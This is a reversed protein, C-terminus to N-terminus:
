GGALQLITDFLSAGIAMAKASAQYAQQYRLLNAAEEDLNVGSLTERSSRAQDLITQQANSAVQLQRTRSGVQSVLNAYADALSETGGGITPQTQLQAIALANRGDATAGANRVISFSDGNNPLGSIVFSFGSPQSTAASGVLTIRAGSTYAVTDTPAAITVPAAGDISVQAGVPFNRLRGSDFVLSVPLTTVAAPYGAEAEGASITASGTNSSAAATRLPGAAAILRPDAVHTPNVAIDRAAHRVPQILYSTGASLPATASLTFGQPDSALRGNVAALDSGSWRRDDALRTLTVGTTDVSLRYDSAGLDTQYHGDYAPPDILTASVTPSGAANRTNATVVPGAISFLQPAFTSSPGSIQSQGLLDQGLASQANVVLALSAANRGLENIAPDLAERRFALLGALSGGKILSEPMEQGGSATSLGVTLRTPDSSSPRAEITMAQSGVVLQQGSGFFVSVTGDGNSTARTSVLKSLELLLQDRTDRLDNAPQGTSAEALAIEQNVSALQGAYSNIETVSARIEDDVQSAMQDLQGALSQYRASLSRANAVMVQRAALQAPDSAVQQVSAFFDQLVPALGSASDSLLNDIRSIQSHYSDLESASSQSRQVQETLFRSYVREVSVVETGRGIFGAGTRAADSATQVTRQRTFGPTNVNAINHETTQLGAQAAQLGSLGIGLIASGM